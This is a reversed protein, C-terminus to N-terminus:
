LVPAVVVRFGALSDFLAPLFRLCSSVRALRAVSFWAGGRLPRTDSDSADLDHLWEWVNGSGDWVGTSSVGQPYTTVATISAERRTEDDSRTWKLWTDNDAFEQGAWSEACNLCTADFHNGWPYNSGGSM